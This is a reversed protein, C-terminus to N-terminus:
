KEIKRKDNDDDEKEEKKKTFTNHARSRMKNYYWQIVKFKFVFSIQGFHKSHGITTKQDNGCLWFGSKWGIIRLWVLLAKTSFLCYSLAISDCEYEFKRKIRFLDSCNSLSQQVNSCQIRISHACLGFRDSHSRAEFLFYYNMRSWVFTTCTKDHCLICVCM